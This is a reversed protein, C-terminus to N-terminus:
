KRSAGSVKVRVGHAKEGEPEVHIAIGAGPHVVRIADEIRDCIDHADGVAMAEPVVMHFDVFIAPGAQRTKLDHVGLSGGANAAIAAKIAEEEDAPVAKDMLGDVSRSIVKWGQFLINGAVIVALLPDLIAYGTAIALLLGVLVGASTVVDSLIHQGDASLAPSRHRSGARILVYAWIANVVGASFNIALGLTPANLLVPAMMEPIAEWIILLAALVILVGEIVASFYEAKHHGFPHDADAPKAAYGIMAYAIVAAVVNVSSELGDSLLAVSGTVWWALMKLGMVGLSLPIGWFALRLITRNDTGTM